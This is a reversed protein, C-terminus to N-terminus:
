LLFVIVVYRDVADGTWCEDNSRAATMLGEACLGRSLSSYLMRSSDLSEVFSLLREDLPVSPNPAM